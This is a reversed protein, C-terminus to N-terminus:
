TMCVTHVTYSTIINIYLKFDLVNGSKTISLTCKACWQINYIYHASHFHHICVVTCLLCIYIYIYIIYTHIHHARVVTFVSVTIPVM